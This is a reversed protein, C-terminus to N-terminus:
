LCDLKVKWTQKTEIDIATAITETFGFHLQIKLLRKEASQVDNSFVGSIHGISKCGDDSCYSAKQNSRYIEVNAEYCSSSCFSKEIINGIKLEQNKEILCDFVDTCVVQGSDNVHKHTPPHIKEMFPIDTAVGYYAKSKRIIGQTEDSPVEQGLQVFKRVMNEPSHGFLVAGKMVAISGERPNIVKKNPFAARIAKRLLPCESFGGVLLIIDIEAVKENQYLEKLHSVVASIPSNFVTEILYDEDFRLKSRSFTKIKKKLGMEQIRSTVAKDNGQNAKSCEKFLDALISFTISGAKDENPNEQGVGRKKTEFSRLLHLYDSPSNKKFCKVAKEGFIKHMLDLFLGDVNTGGVANGSACQIESLSNGDKVEYATVDVTGGAFL